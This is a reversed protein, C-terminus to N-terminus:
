RFVNIAKRWWPKLWENVQDYIPVIDDFPMDKLEKITIFKEKSNTYIFEVMQMRRQERERNKEEIEKLHQEGEFSVERALRRKKVELQHRNARLYKDLNRYEDDTSLLSESFAKSEESIKAKKTTSSM